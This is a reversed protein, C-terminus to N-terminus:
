SSSHRLTSHMKRRCGLKSRQYKLKYETGLAQALFPPPNLVGGQAQYKVFVKNGACLLNVTKAYKQKNIQRSLAFFLTPIQICIELFM